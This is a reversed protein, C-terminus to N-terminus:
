EARLRYRIARKGDFLLELYYTSIDTVVYDFTYTNGTKIFPIYVQRSEASPDKVRKGTRDDVFWLQPNRFINSNIQIKSVPLKYDFSFHITDGKKIIIMGTAPKENSINELMPTGYYFPMNFFTEKTILTDEVWRADKPYHNRVLKKYPTLWYYNKYEKVYKKIKGSEEDEICSGAAWTPDLYYWSGDLMVANWAHKANLPNGITLPNTKSYGPVIDATINNLECLRKFLKAYGNCVAKNSKLVDKLYNEEWEKRIAACNASGRCDPKVLEKGENFFEYDYVINNTIWKFISRVKYIDQTYPITLDRALKAIDKEYQVTGAFSDITSFNYTDFKSQAPLSIHILLLLSITFLFKM